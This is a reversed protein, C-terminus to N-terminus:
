GAFEHNQNKVLGFWYYFWARLSQNIPRLNLIGISKDVTTWGADIAPATADVRSLVLLAPFATVDAIAHLGVGGSSTM